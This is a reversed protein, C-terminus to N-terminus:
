YHQEQNHFIQMSLLMKNTKDLETLVYRMQTFTNFDDQSCTNPMVSAMLRGMNDVSELVNNNADRFTINQWCATIGVRSNMQITSAVGTALVNGNNPRQTGAGDLVRFTFVARLSAMDIMQNSGGTIDFVIQSNNNKPSYSNIGNIPFTEAQSVAILSM